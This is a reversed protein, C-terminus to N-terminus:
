QFYVLQRMTYEIIELNIEDNFATFNELIKTIGEINVKIFERRQIKNEFIILKCAV